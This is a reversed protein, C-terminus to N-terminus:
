LTNGTVSLLFVASACHRVCDVCTKLAHMLADCFSVNCSRSTWWWKRSKMVAEDADGAV